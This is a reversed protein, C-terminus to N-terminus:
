RSCNQKKIIVSDRLLQRSLQPWQAAAVTDEAQIGLWPICPILTAPVSLYQYVPLTEPLYVSPCSEMCFRGETHRRSAQQQGLHPCRHLCMWRRLAPTERDSSTIPETRLRQTSSPKPKALARSGSTTAPAKSRKLGSTVTRNEAKAEGFSSREVHCIKPHLPTKLNQHWIETALNRLGETSAATALIHHLRPNERAWATGSANVTRPPNESSLLM